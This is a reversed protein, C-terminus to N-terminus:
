AVTEIDNLILKPLGKRRGRSGDRAMLDIYLENGKVTVKHLRADVGTLRVKLLRVDDKTLEPGIVVRDVEPTGLEIVPSPLAIEINALDLIVQDGYLTGGRYDIPSSARLIVRTRQQDTEFDVSVIVCGKGPEGDEPGVARAPVSSIVLAMSLLGPIITSWRWIKRRM